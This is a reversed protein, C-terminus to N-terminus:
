WASRTLRILLFKVQIILNRHNGDRNGDFAGTFLNEIHGGVCGSSINPFNEDKETRPWLHLEKAPFTRSATGSAQRLPVRALSPNSTRASTCPLITTLLPLQQHQLRSHNASLTIPFVKGERM